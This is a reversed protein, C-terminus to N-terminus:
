VHYVNDIIRELHLYKWECKDADMSITEEQFLRNLKGTWGFSLM